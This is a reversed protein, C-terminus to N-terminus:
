TRKEYLLKGVQQIHAVLSHNKIEELQLALDVDSQPAFRGKARSGYVIVRGRSLHKKLLSILLAHQQLTLGFKM